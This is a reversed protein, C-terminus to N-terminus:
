ARMVRILSLQWNRRRYRKMVRCMRTVLMLYIQRSIVRMKKNFLDCDSNHNGQIAPIGFVGLQANPEFATIPARTGPGTVEVVVSAFINSSFSVVAGGNVNTNNGSQPTNDDDKSCSALLFSM